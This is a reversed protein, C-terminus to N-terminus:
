VERNTPLTLHTYSVPTLLTAIIDFAIGLYVPMRRTHDGISGWYLLVIAAILYVISVGRAFLPENVTVLQHGFPTFLLGALLSAQLIRYLSFFYTERQVLSRDSYRSRTRDFM